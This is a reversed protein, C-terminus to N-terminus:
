ESPPRRGEVRGPRAGPAAEHSRLVPQALKEVAVAEIEVRRGDEHDAPELLVPVRLGSNDGVHRELGVLAPEDFHVLRRPLILLIAEQLVHIRDPRAEQRHEQDM